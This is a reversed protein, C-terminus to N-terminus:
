AEEPVDEVKAKKTEVEPEDEAKRKGNGITGNSVEPETAAKPKHRVLGSLDNANKKANEVRAIVEEASEGSTTHQLGGM